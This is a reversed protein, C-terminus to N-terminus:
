LLHNILQILNSILSKSFLLNRVCVVSVYANRDLEHNTEELCSRSIIRVCLCKKELMALILPNKRDSSIQLAKYTCDFCHFVIERDILYCLKRIDRKSKWETKM